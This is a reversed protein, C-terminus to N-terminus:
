RVVAGSRPALTLRGADLTAPATALVIERGGVEVAAPADAFCMAIEVGGRRVLLTRADEDALASETEAAGVERRHRLLDAYLARMADDGAAPDLRSRAFTRPDQPDPVEEGFGTFRAFERRRGERTAEAIGPDIHDTFFMFPRREGYEEGMFILPTFPSLIVSLAALRRVEAPLRDGLARNGVQDHNQACVVFQGPARDDAPAGHRRRRVPSWTGDHVYPRRWAKALQGVAGYEAYYGDREGTLLAHLAHHFDDAWHADHGWGGVAEPRIVRPDNLDSEAIVLAGPREAHVRAALEAMVHRAGHDYIAHVADLRLGDVHFDRVWMCANQIAWERVPGSDADDYNMAEGWFTGYRGTFYSGFASLAEAGPGVHNYVVDLVVGLGAAHAADVLRALGDPGGYVPHPAFAYVGDYGWNREGPFTGVPMLEIATIGLERLAPLRPIAADFTGEPTFTGVHLEYLVLDGLAVGSWGGDTWAFAAPDVAESPGRVGEPQARSCPDPWAREGDLRYRYRTGAGGPFRGEWVGLGAEALPHEGDDTLAAVSGARPAWVRAEVTGDARPFAGLPRTWPLDPTTV